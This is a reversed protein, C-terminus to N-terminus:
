QTESFSKNDIVICRIIDGLFHLYCARYWTCHHMLRYVVRDARGPPGMCPQILSKRNKQMRINEALNDQM